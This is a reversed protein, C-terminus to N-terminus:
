SATPKPDTEVSDLLKRMKAHLLVVEPNEQLAALYRAVFSGIAPPRGCDSVLNELAARIAVAQEREVPEKQDVLEDIEAMLASMPHLWAFFADSTVLQYLELPGRVPAHSREYEAQVLDILSKHLPRLAHSLADLRKRREAESPDAAADDAMELLTAIAPPSPLGPSAPRM